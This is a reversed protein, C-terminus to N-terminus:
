IIMGSKVSVSESRDAFCSIKTAVNSKIKSAGGYKKPPVMAKECLMISMLLSVEWVSTM